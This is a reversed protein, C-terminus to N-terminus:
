ANERRKKIYYYARGAAAVLVTGVIVPMIPLESPRNIDAQIGYYETDIRVELMGYECMIRITDGDVYEHPFNLCDFMYEGASTQMTEEDGTRLNTLTVVTGDPSLLGDQGYVRGCLVYPTNKFAAGHTCDLVAFFTFSALVIVLLWLIVKSHRM